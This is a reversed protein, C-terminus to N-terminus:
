KFFIIIIFKMQYLLLVYMQHFIEFINKFVKKIINTYCDINQYITKFLISYKNIM